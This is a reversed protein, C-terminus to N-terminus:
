IRPESLIIVTILFDFERNDCIVVTILRKKFDIVAWSVTLEKVLEKVPGPPEKLNKFYGFGVTTQNQNQKKL